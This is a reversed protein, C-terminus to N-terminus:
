SLTHRETWLIRAHREVYRWAGDVRRCTDVYCVPNTVVEPAATDTARLHKAITWTEGTAVDGDVDLLQNGVLYMTATYRAMHDIIAALGDPAVFERTESASILLRGGPVFLEGLTPADLDHMTKAYREALERLALRDAVPHPDM